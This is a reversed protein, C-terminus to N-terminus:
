KEVKINEPFLVSNLTNIIKTKEYIEPPFLFAKKEVDM